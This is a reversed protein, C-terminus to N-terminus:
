YGCAYWMFQCAQRSAGGTSIYKISSKTKTHVSLQFYVYSYDSLILTANFTYNMNSFAKLFTITGQQSAVQLGGQEIWGDSYKRYWSNGDESIYTEIVFHGQNMLTELTQRFQDCETKLDDIIQQTNVVTSPVEDALKFFLYNGCNYESPTPLNAYGTTLWSPDININNHFYHEFSNATKNYL